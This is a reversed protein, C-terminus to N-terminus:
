QKAQLWIDEIPNQTPDNPAFRLCSIKWDSEEWGNNVVSSFDKVEALSDYKAGDWILARRKENYQIM